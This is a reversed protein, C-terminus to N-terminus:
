KSSIIKKIYKGLIDFEINAEDGKKMASFNTNSFTHPIIAVSFNNRKTEVVTLSIGSVCISGKEIILSKVKLKQSKVEFSFLWSGKEKKISKVRATTDVHGQVFHGDLRDGVKLSRELNIKDGVKLKGLNTKSLTEKVATIFYNKGSIKEVTLCVGNHAVSQGEKLESTFDAEVSFIINGKEKKISIIKGVTEVIGTFM